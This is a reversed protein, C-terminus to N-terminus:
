PTVNIKGSMLRPLLLDRQQKLLGNQSMLNKINNFIANTKNHYKYILEKQPFLVKLKEFKGKSLNTMTSGTSGFSIITSKLSVCYFFLWELIKKDDLIISNIQQNTHAQVANISVIGGTGICSVMISNPPLLKKPQSNSGKISLMEETEFTYLNGHMDPTKVFLIDNGYYETIETSPTKGTEIKGFDGLRKIEWGQPIGNIFKTNQHNPFRFRVFWEKYLEEACGRLIEMRRNNKEILDDYASLISAIKTQTQLNSIIELKMKKFASLIIRPLASGSVYNAMSNKITSTRLLYVFYDPDIIDLNPRLIAISSLICAELNEKVKFAHKLYSGDKAILIDNKLPRCDAKKLKEFIEKGIHKCNSNDFGNYQMDKVSYMPYIGNTDDVPSYHSGDTIKVCLDNIHKVEFEVIM